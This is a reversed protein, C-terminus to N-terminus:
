IVPSCDTNAISPNARGDKYNLRALDVDFAMVDENKLLCLDLLKDRDYLQYVTGQYEIGPSDVM